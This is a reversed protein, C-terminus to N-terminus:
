IVVSRSCIKRKLTLNCQCHGNIGQEEEATKADLALSLLNKSLKDPTHPVELFRDTYRADGEVLENSLAALDLDEPEEDDSPKVLPLFSMKSRKARLLEYIADSQENVITLSKSRKNIRNVHVLRNRTGTEVLKKRADRLLYEVLEKSSRNTAEDSTM